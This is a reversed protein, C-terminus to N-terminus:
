IVADQWLWILSHSSHQQKKLGSVLLNRDVYLRFCLYWVLIAVITWLIAKLLHFIASTQVSLSHPSSKYAPPGLHCHSFRTFVPLKMEWFNPTIVSLVVNESECKKEWGRTLDHLTEDATERSPSSNSPSFFMFINNISCQTLESLLTTGADSETTESM